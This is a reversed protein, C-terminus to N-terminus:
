ILNAVFWRTVILRTVMLKTIFFSIELITAFSLILSTLFLTSDMFLLYKLFSNFFTDDPFNSPHITLKLPFFYYLIFLMFDSSLIFCKYCSFIFNFNFIRSQWIFSLSQTCFIFKNYFFLNIKSFFDSFTFRFFFYFSNILTIFSVNPFHNPMSSRLSIHFFYFYIKLKQIFFLFSLHIEM